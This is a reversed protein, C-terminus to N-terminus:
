DVRTSPTGGEAELMGALRRRDVKGNPNLPMEDLVMVRQPVMYEPLLTRLTRVLRDPSDVAGCVFAVIGLPRGDEIPWPVAAAQLVGPQARLAAEVEGLEIRFGFLKIQDDLRGIFVFEGSELRSVRDGTRYFRERRAASIPLDVFSERTRAEDQWYGPITQPGCVLLEGIQGAAVPDLREDVVLAGIGPLPRGIPVVDNVAATPSAAADWRHAFCAITLETPGYLNDVISDPAAEQWARATATTLSEGCFLSYRLTPMSGPKLSGKRMAMAATSPVSFWVTLEHEQVYRVPTLLEIPHMAYLTAGANWTVFLDHVALDFTHDFTQSCRDEPGIRYRKSMADLYHLANAHTVAIGKPEGTTGSTFLLYAAVDPRVPPLVELPGLSAVAPDDPAVLRPITELGALAAALQSAFRDEVVIADLMARRIMVRTRLAPFRPNLPVFAAGSFLAALTGAYAVASRSGFVGVRKAEITGDRTIAAAILRARRELEGYAITEGSVVLCPHAPAAAARNLFGSRLSRGNM